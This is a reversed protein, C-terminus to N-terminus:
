WAADDLDEIAEVLDAFLSMVDYRFDITVEGGRTAVDVEDMMYLLPSSGGAVQRLSLRGFALAGEVVDSIARADEGNRAVLGVHVQLEGDREGFDAELAQVLETLQAAPEIDPAGPLGESASVYFFSGKSPRRRLVSDSAESLNRADRRLVRASRLLHDGDGGMLVLQDDSGRVQHVHAFGEGDAFVLLELEGRRSRRLEGEEELRDVVHGVGGRVLAMVVVEDEEVSSGYLTVSRLDRMPDIGLEERVDEMEDVLDELDLAAGREQAEKWLSSALFAEVDIHVLWRADAPIRDARLGDAMSPAALATLFLAPALRRLVPPLTM